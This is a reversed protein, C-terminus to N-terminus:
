NILKNVGFHWFDYWCRTKEDFNRWFQRWEFNWFNRKLDEPHQEAHVQRPCCFRILFNRRRPHCWQNFFDFEPWFDISNQEFDEFDYRNWHNKLIENFFKTGLEIKSSAFLKKTNPLLAMRMFNGSQCLSGESNSMLSRSAGTSSFDNLFGCFETWHYNM